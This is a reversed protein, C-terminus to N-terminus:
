RFISVWLLKNQYLSMAIMIFDAGPTTAAIGFAEVSFFPHM